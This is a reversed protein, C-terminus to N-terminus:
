VVKTVCGNFLVKLVRSLRGDRDELATKLPENKEVFCFRASHVGTRLTKKTNPVYYCIWMNNANRESAQQVHALFFTPEVMAIKM